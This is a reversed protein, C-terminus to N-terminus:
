DSRSAMTAFGVGYASRRNIPIAAQDCGRGTSEVDRIREEVWSVTLHHEQGIWHRRDISPPDDFWGPLSNRM